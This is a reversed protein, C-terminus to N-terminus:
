VTIRIERADIMQQIAVELDIQDPNESSQQMLQEAIEAQELTHANGEGDQIYAAWPVCKTLPFLQGEQPSIDINLCSIFLLRKGQYEPARVISRFARDFEVQTNVQAAVLLPAPSTVIWPMPNILNNELHSRGELDGGINRHYVFMEPGLHRGIRIHAGPSFVNDPLYNVFEDSAVYVRSTSLTRHLKLKGDELRVM